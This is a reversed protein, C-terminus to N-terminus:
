ILAMGWVEHGGLSVPTEIGDKIEARFVAERAFFREFGSKDANDTTIMYLYRDQTYDDRGRGAYFDGKTYNAMLAAKLCPIAEKKYFGGYSMFWILQHEYYIRTEGVSKGTAPDVYYRDQLYLDKGVNRREYVKWDADGSLLTAKAGGAYGKAMGRCFFAQAEALLENRDM